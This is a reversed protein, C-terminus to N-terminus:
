ARTRQLFGHAAEHWDEVGIILIAPVCLNLLKSVIAAKM